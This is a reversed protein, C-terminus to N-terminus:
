TLESKRTKFPCSRSNRGKGKHLIFHVALRKWRFARRTARLSMLNSLPSSRASLDFFATTEASIVAAGEARAIQRAFRNERLGEGAERRPDKMDFQIQLSPCQEDAPLPGQM